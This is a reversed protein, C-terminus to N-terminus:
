WCASASTFKEDGDSLLLASVRVSVKETVSQTEGSAPLEFPLWLECHEVASAKASTLLAGATCSDTALTASISRCAHAASSGTSVSAAGFKVSALSQLVSSAASATESGSLSGSCAADTM